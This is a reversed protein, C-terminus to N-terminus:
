GDHGHRREHRQALECVRDALEGLDHGL